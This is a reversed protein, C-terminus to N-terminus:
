LALDFITLLVFAFIANALAKYLSVGIKIKSLDVDEKSLTESSFNM